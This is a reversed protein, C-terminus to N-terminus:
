ETVRLYYKSSLKGELHTNSPSYNQRESNIKGNSERQRAKYNPGYMQVDLKYVPELSRWAVLLVKGSFWDMSCYRGESLLRKTSM